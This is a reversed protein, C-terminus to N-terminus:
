SDSTPLPHSSNDWVDTSRCFLNKELKLRVEQKGRMGGKAWGSMVWAKVTQGRGGTKGLSPSTFLLKFSSLFSSLASCSCLTSPSMPKSYLLTTEEAKSSHFSLCCCVFMNDHCHTHYFIPPEKCPQQLSPFTVLVAIFM